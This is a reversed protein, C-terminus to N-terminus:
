DGPRPPMRTRTWRWSRPGPHNSASRWSSWRVGEDSWLLLATRWGVGSFRDARLSPLPPPIIWRDDVITIV